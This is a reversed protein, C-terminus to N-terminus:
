GSMASGRRKVIFVYLFDEERLSTLLSRHTVRIFLQYNNPVDKGDASTLDAVYLDRHNEVWFATCPEVVQFHLIRILSAPTSLFLKSCSREAWLMLQAVDFVFM